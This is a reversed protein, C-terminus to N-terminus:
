KNKNNLKERVFNGLDYNNPINNVEEITIIVFQKNADELKKIFDDKTTEM